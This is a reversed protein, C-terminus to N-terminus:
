YEFFDRNIYIYATHGGPWCRWVHIALVLTHYLIHSKHAPTCVCYSIECVLHAVVVLVRTCNQPPMSKGLAVCVHAPFRLLYARNDEWPWIPMYNHSTHRTPSSCCWRGYMGYRAVFGAMAPTEPSLRSCASAHPAESPIGRLQRASRM